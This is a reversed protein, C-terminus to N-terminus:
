DFQGGGADIAQVIDRVKLSKYMHQGGSVAKKIAETIAFFPTESPAYKGGSVIVQAGFEDQIWIIFEFLDDGYIRLDNFIETEINISTPDIKLPSMTKLKEVVKRYVEESM